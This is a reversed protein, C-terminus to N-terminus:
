DLMWGPSVGLLAGAEYQELGFFTNVCHAFLEAEASPSGNEISIMKQLAPVADYRRDLYWNDVIDYPYDGALNPMTELVQYHEKLYEIVHIARHFSAIHLLTDGAHDVSYPNAGFKILKDIAYVDDSLVASSLPSYASLDQMNVYDIIDYDTHGNQSLQNMLADFVEQFMYTNSEIEMLYHLPSKNYLDYAYLNAGSNILQLATEMAKGKLAIHLPTQGLNNLININGINEIGENNYAAIHDETNGHADLFLRLFPDCLYLESKTETTGNGTFIGIINDIVHPVTKLIGDSSNSERQYLTFNSLIGANRFNLEDTIHYKYFHSWEENLIDGFVANYLMYCFYSCNHFFFNYIMESGQKDLYQMMGNIFTQLKMLQSENMDFTTSMSGQAFPGYFSNPAFFTDTTYYKADYVTDDRLYSIQVPAYNNIGSFSFTYETGSTKDTVQVYSHISATKFAISYKYEAHDDLVEHKIMSRDAAMFMITNGNKGMVVTDDKIQAVDNVSPDRMARFFNMFETNNNEASFNDVIYCDKQARDDHYKYISIDGFQKYPATKLYSRDNQVTQNM